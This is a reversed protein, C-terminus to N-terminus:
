MNSQMTSSKHTTAKWTMEM